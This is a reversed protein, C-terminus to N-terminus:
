VYLIPTNISVYRNRSSRYFWPWTHINYRFELRHILASSLFIQLVYILHHLSYM